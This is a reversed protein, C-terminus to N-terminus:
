WVQVSDAAFIMKALEAYDAGPLSLDFTVIENGGQAKQASIIQLAPAEAPTTLIHLIVRM